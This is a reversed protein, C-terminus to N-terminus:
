SSMAINAECLGICNQNRFYLFIPEQFILTASQNRFCMNSYCDPVSTYFYGKPEQLTLVYLVRTGSTWLLLANQNIFYLLLRQTESTHTHCDSEEYMYAYCEQGSTYTYGKTGTTYTNAVSVAPAPGPLYVCPIQM